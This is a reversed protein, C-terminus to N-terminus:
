SLYCPKTYSSSPCPIPTGSPTAEKGQLARLLMIDQMKHANEIFDSKLCPDAFKSALYQEMLTVQEFRVSSSMQHAITLSPGSSVFLRMTIPCCCSSNKRSQKLPGQTGGFIVEPKPLCQTAKAAHASRKWCNLRPGVSSVKSGTSQAFCSVTKVALRAACRRLTIWIGSGCVFTKRFATCREGDGSLIIWEDGVYRAGHQAFALLAETKGGKSWGTLLIGKGQHTFASAHLPVCDKSLLTFNLIAM